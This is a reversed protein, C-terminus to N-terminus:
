YCDEHPPRTPIFTVGCCDMRNKIKPNRKAAAIQVAAAEEAEETTNGTAVGASDLNEDNEHSWRDGEDRKVLCRCGVKVSRQTTAMASLCVDDFGIATTAVPLLGCFATAGAFLLLSTQAEPKFINSNNVAQYPKLAPHSNTQHM